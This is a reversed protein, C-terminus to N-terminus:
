SRRRLRNASTLTCRRTAPAPRTAPVSTIAPPRAASNAPPLAVGAERRVPAGSIVVVVTPEDSGASPQRATTGAVVTGALVGTCCCYSLPKSTPKEDAPLSAIILSASTSGSEGGATPPPQGARGALSVGSRQVVSNTAPRSSMSKAWWLRRARPAQSTASSAGSRMGPMGARKSSRVSYTETMSGAMVPRGDGSGALLATAPPRM